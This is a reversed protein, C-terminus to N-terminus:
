LAGVNGMYSVSHHGVLPCVHWGYRQNEHGVKCPDHKTMISGYTTYLYWTSILMHHVDKTRVSIHFLGCTWDVTM